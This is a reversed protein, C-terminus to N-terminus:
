PIARSPQSARQPQLRPQLVPVQVEERARGDQPCRAVLQVGHRCHLSAVPSLLLSLGICSSISRGACAPTLTHHHAHHLPQARREHRANADLQCYLVPIAPPLPSPVPTPATLCRACHHFCRAAHSLLHLRPARPRFLSLLLPLWGFDCSIPPHSACRVTRWIAPEGAWGDGTIEERSRIIVDLMVASAFGVGIARSRLPRM